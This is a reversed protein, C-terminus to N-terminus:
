YSAMKAPDSEKKAQKLHFLVMDVNKKLFTINGKIESYQYEENSATYEPLADSKKLDYTKGNLHITATNKTQNITVEIKEGYSDVYVNKSINDTNEPAAATVNEAEKSPHKCATSSLVALGILIPTLLNKM